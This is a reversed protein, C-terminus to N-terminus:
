RRSRLSPCTWCRRAGQRVRESLGSVTGHEDVAIGALLRLAHEKPEVVRVSEFVRREGVQFAREDHGVARM